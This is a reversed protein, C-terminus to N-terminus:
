KRKGGAKLLDMPFMLCFVYQGKDFEYGVNMFEDVQINQHKINLSLEEMATDKMEM